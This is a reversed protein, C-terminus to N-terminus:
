PAALCELFVGNRHRSIAVVASEPQIQEAFQRLLLARRELLLVKKPLLCEIADPSGFVLQDVVIERLPESRVLARSEVLVIERAGHMPVAYRRRPM